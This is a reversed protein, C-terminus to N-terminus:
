LKAVDVRDYEAHTGIFKIYCAKLSYSVGVILRYNNGGINFVVKNGVFSASRYNNKIDQPNGWKARKAEDLWARLPQEAPPHKLWFDRLTTVSVINM